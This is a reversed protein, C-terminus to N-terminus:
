KGEVYDALHKVPGHGFIKATEYTEWPPCFAGWKTGAIEADSLRRVHSQVDSGHESISVGFAYGNPFRILAERGSDAFSSLPDFGNLWEQPVSVPGLGKHASIMQNM